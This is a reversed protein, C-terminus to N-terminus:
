NVLMGLLIGLVGGIFVQVPTHGVTECLPATASTSHESQEARLRNLIQAHRGVALRVGTADYLVIGAVVIALAFIPSGVGINRGIGTALACVLAAHGSPMGGPALLRDTAWRRERVSAIITKSVQAVCWALLAALLIHNHLADLM